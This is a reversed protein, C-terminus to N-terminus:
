RQLGKQKVFYYRRGEKMIGLLGAAALIYGIARLRGIFHDKNTRKLEEGGQVGKIDGYIEECHFIRSIAPASLERQVRGVEQQDVIYFNGRTSEEMDTMVFFQDDQRFIWHSKRGDVVKWFKLDREKVNGEGISSM